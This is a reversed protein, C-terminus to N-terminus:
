GSALRASALVSYRSGERSLQSRMVDLTHVRIEDELALGALQRDLGRFLGAGGSAAARGVTVHPHFSRTEAEFGVDGMAWELDQKMCRFEPTAEVGLWLVRPKRVTPFAGFVTIKATFPRNGSAVRALAEQIAALRERRVDGLFKLTIHFSDPDVWRVPLGDERLSRVARDIRIRQKKPINIGIFLRM